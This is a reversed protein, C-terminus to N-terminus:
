QSVRWSVFSSCLNLLNKTRYNESFCSQKLEKFNALQSLFTSDLILIEEEEEEEQRLLLQQKKKLHIKKTNLNVLMSSACANLLNQEKTSNQKQKQKFFFVDEILKWHIIKELLKQIKNQLSVLLLIEENNEPSSSDELRLYELIMGGQIEWNSIQGNLGPKELENLIQLLIQKEGKFLCNLVLKKMIIQHAIEFHFSSIYYAIQEKFKFQFGAHLARAEQIFKLPIQLEKILFFEIEKQQNTKVQHLHFNLIQQFTEFRELANSLTLSVYIAEKWLGVNTLQCIFFHNLHSEWKKELQFGLSKLIQYLHWSIEYQLHNKKQNDEFCFFGSPSLVQCLTTSTTNTNTTTNTNSNSTCYLKMLEMLIDEKKNPKNLNNQKPKKKNMAQFFFNMAEHLPTSPGKKYWLFLCFTEMWVFKNNKEKNTYNQTFVEVSGSLISYIMVLEQNMKELNGQKIWSHNMQNLILERFDSGEFTLIQSLLTSLRFEGMEMALESAEVIRHQCILKLISSFNLKVELKSPSILEIAEEFFKSIAERRLDVVHFTEFTDSIKSDDVLAVVHNNNTTSSSNINIFEQGWLARVLKWILLQKLSFNLIPSNIIRIRIWKKVTFFFFFLIIM